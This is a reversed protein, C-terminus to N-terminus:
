WWIKGLFLFYAKTIEKEKIMACILLLEPVKKSFLNDSDTKNDNCMMVSRETARKSLHEGVSSPREPFGEDSLPFAREFLDCSGKGIRKLLISLAGARKSM